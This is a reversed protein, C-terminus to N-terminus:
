PISVGYKRGEQNKAAKYVYYEPVPDDGNFQYGRIIDEAHRFLKFFSPDDLTVYPHELNDESADTCNEAVWFVVENRNTHMNEIYMAPTVYRELYYQSLNKYEDEVDIRKIILYGNSHVANFYVEYYVNCIQGKKNKFTHCECNNWFEDKKADYIENNNTDPYVKTDKKQVIIEKPKLPLKIILFIILSIFALIIPVLISWRTTFIITFKDRM